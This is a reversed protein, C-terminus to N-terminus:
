LGSDEGGSGVGVGDAEEGVEAAGVVEAVEIEDAEDEVMELEELEVMELEVEMEDVNCVEEVNVVLEKTWDDLKLVEVVRDLGEDRSDLWDVAVVSVPVPLVEYPNVDHLPKPHLEELMELATESRVDLVERVSEVVELRRDEVDADLWGVTAAEEAESRAGLVLEVIINPLEVVVGPPEVGVDPPEDTRPVGDDVLESEDDDSVVDQEPESHVVRQVPAPQEELVIVLRVTIEDTTELLWVSVLVEDDFPEVPGRVDEVVVTLVEDVEPAEVVGTSIRLVLEVVEAIEATDSEERVLPPVLRVVEQSPKTQTDRQTPEPHGNDVGLGPVDVATVTDTVPLELVPLKLVVETKGVFLREVVDVTVVVPRETEVGDADEQEPSAHRLTQTPGFQLPDAVDVTVLRDIEAVSDGPVVVRDVRSSPAGDKAIVAVLESVDPRVVVPAVAAGVDVQVFRRHTSAQKLRPPPHTTAKDLVAEELPSEVEIVEGAEANVVACVVVPGGVEVVKRAGAEVVQTSRNQTLRHEPRPVAQVTDKVLGVRDDPVRDIELVTRGTGAVVVSEFEGAEEHVPIATAARGASEASHRVDQEPAEESAHPDGLRKISTPGMTVVGNTDKDPGTDVSGPDEPEPLEVVARGNPHESRRQTLADRSRNGLTVVVDFGNVILLGTDVSGLAGPVLPLPLAPLAPTEDDQVLRSQGDIPRPLLPPVVLVTLVVLVIVVVIGDPVVVRSLVTVVAGEGEVDASGSRGPDVPADLAEAVGPSALEDDVAEHIPASQRLRLAPISLVPSVDVVPITDPVEVVEEHLPMAQILTETPGTVNGSPATVVSEEVKVGLLVVAEEPEGVRLRPPGLAEPVPGELIVPDGDWVESGPQVPNSHGLTPKGPNPPLPPKDVDATGVVVLEEFVTVTGLWLEDLTAAVVEELLVLPPEDVLMNDMAAPVGPRELVVLGGNDEAAAALQEPKSHMETPRPPLLAGAVEDELVLVEGGVMGREEEVDGEDVEDDVVLVGWGEDEVFVLLETGVLMVDAGADVVLGAEVDLVLLQLPKTQGERQTSLQRRSPTEGLVSAVYTRDNPRLCKWLEKEEEPKGLGLGREGRERHYRKLAKNISCGHESEPGKNVFSLFLEARTRYVVMQQQPDQPRQHPAPPAHHHYEIRRKSSRSSDGDEKSSRHHKRPRTSSEDSARRSSPAKRIRVLAGSSTKRVKEGDVTTVVRKTRKVPSTPNPDLQQSSNSYEPSRPFKTSKSLLRNLGGTLGSHLMPTQADVMISDLEQRSLPRAATLDLEDVHQRKRKKDTSKRQAGDLEYISVQSDNQPAHKPAPTQYQIQKPTANSPVPEAGYTYGDREFASDYEHNTGSDSSQPRNADFLPRAHPKMEMQARTGGLSIKSANPTDEAVLFDFVNVPLANKSSVAPPPSPAGPPPDVVIIAHNTDPDPADEVFAQRPVLTSTTSVKVSNKAQKSPKEKYLSGQYKQAETICSTHARFDTGRFHTM